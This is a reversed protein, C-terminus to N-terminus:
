DSVYIEASSLVTAVDAGGALLVKGSALWTATHGNRRWIMNGAPLFNGVAPDYLEASSLTDVDPGLGGAFLLKGNPLATTTYGDWVRTMDAGPTFTGSAPDYVETTPPYYWVSSASLNAGGSILVKGNPLPTATLDARATTMSGTAIFTGAAPAYLEASALFINSSPGSTEGGAILVRGDPLAAAAFQWRALILSGTPTFRETTPDYLESSGVGSASDGGAVMLVRGDPLLIARHNCRASVMSGTTVFSGTAPDYLEASKLTVLTTSGSYRNDVYSGGAILVKGNQLLTATHGCRKDTTSRSVAFREEVPDYLETSSYCGQAGDSGGVVLVKGDPLLTATHGIRGITMSGTALFRSPEPARADAAADPLRIDLGDELAPASDAIRLDPGGDKARLPSGGCGLLLSVVGCLSLVSIFRRM